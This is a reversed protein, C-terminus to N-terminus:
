DICPFSISVNLKANKLRSKSNNFIFCCLYKRNALAGAGLVSYQMKISLCLVHKLMYATILKLM